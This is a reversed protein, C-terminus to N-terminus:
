CAVYAGQVSSIDDWWDVAEATATGGQGSAVMCCFSFAGNSNVSVHHNELAPIGGFNVVEGVTPTGTVTGEFLWMGGGENIATFGGISPTGAALTATVQNSSGNAAAAAVQGLKSATLTVSYNGQANTTTSGTVAGTFNITQNGPSSTNTLQGSLQVQRSPEYTVTMTLTSPSLRDELRELSLSVRRPSVSKHARPARVPLGLM